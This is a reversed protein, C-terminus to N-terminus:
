HKKENKKKLDGLLTILFAPIPVNLRSLNELISFGENVIFFLGVMPSIPIGDIIGMYDIIKCLAICVLIGIKKLIGRRGITSNIKKEMIAVLVGTFYDLAIVALLIITESIKM